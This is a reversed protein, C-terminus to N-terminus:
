KIGGKECEDILADAIELSSKAMNHWIEKNTDGRWTTWDDSGVMSAVIQAAIHLRNHDHFDDKLTYNFSHTGSEANKPVCQEQRTGEDKPKAPEPDKVRDPSLAKIINRMEGEPVVIYHIVDYQNKDIYVYYDFCGPLDHVTIKSAEYTISSPSSPSNEQHRYAWFLKRTRPYLDIFIPMYDGERPSFKAMKAIDSDPTTLTTLVVEHNRITYKIKAM